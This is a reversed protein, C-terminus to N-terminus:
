ARCRAPPTRAAMEGATWARHEITGEPYPPDLPHQLRRRSRRATEAAQGLLFSPHKWLRFQEVEVILPWWFEGYPTDAYRRDGDFDIGEIGRLFSVAERCLRRELAKGRMSDARERYDLAIFETLESWLAFGPGTRTQEFRHALLGVLQSRAETMGPESARAEAIATAAQEAARAHAVLKVLDFWRADDDALNMLSVSLCAWSERDDHGPYREPDSFHELEQEVGYDTLSGNLQCGCEDCYPLSDHDTSWGGDLVIDRAARDIEGDEYREDLEPYEEYFLDLIAEACEGCFEQGADHPWGPEDGSFWHCEPRVEANAAHSHIFDEIEARAEAPLPTSAVPHRPM